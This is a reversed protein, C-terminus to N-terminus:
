QDERICRFGIDVRTEGPLARNRITCRFSNPYFDTFSGGRIVRYRPGFDVDAQRNDDSYAEYRDDCWEWVSGAMDLVGIPSKCDPNSGAAPLMDPTWKDHARACALKPRDYMDGWPYERKQETKPDVSAVIEWERESVLRKGAWRAFAYADYWTVGVVPRSPDVGDDFAPRGTADVAIKGDATKKLLYLPCNGWEAPPEEPHSFLSLNHRRALPGPRGVEDGEAPRGDLRAQLFLKYDRVTVEVRDIYLDRPLSVHHLPKENVFGSSDSGVPYKGAPFRAAYPEEGTTALINLNQTFRAQQVRALDQITKGTGPLEIVM